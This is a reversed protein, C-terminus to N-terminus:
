EYVYCFPGSQTDMVDRVTITDAMKDYYLPTDLTINEYAKDGFYAYEGAWSVNPGGIDFKRAPWDAQQWNYWMWDIGGHHAYFLPDGPSSYINSMEGIQGGIAMHGAAHVRMGYVSLSIGEVYYDLHWFNTANLTWDIVSQNGSLTFLWPSFDRRLCHPNYSTHNGPGMSVSLNAFPGDTICGGGTRGPIEVMAQYDEPFGSVNAIYAGNGGFGYVPDFIPSAPVAEESVADLAWNWYPMIGTFNCSQELANQYLHLFYRHWPIFQGCFHYYDTKSIHLGQFDDFRSKAGPYVDSQQSPTNLLCKVAGLYELQQSATLNRWEKRVRPNVCSTSNTSAYSSFALHIHALALFAKFLGSISQM